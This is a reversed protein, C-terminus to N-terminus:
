GRRRDEEVLREVLDEVAVSGLDRRGRARLSVTGAVEERAGLVALYPIKDLEGRRIKAQLKEDRRDLEVRIGARGLVEEVRSATEIFKESLPLIRIQVPALWLPFAGAYHEVLIGFFRELSGFIARHVSTMAPKGVSVSASNSRVSDSNRRTRGAVTM